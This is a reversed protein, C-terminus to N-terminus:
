RLELMMDAFLHKGKAVNDKWSSSAEDDANDSIFKFCRFDVKAKYCAKAIAYAEMDVIDTTLKPPETVFSDGTGCSFGQRGFNLCATDEFPTEGIELGLPRVDMDRQYFNAIEVLGSVGALVGGATGYNIIQKPQYRAIVESAILAANIKGVGTYAIQFEPLVERPLEDELAVLIIQM